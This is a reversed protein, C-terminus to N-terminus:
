LVCECGALGCAAEEALPRTRSSIDQPRLLHQLEKLRGPTSYYTALAVERDDDCIAVWRIEDSNTEECLRVITAANVFGGAATRLFLM